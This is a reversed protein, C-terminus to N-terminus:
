LESISKFSDKMADRFSNLTQQDQSSLQCGTRQAEVENFVYYKNGVRKAGVSNNPQSETAATQSDFVYIDQKFTGKTSSDDICGIAKIQDNTLSLTTSNSGYGDSLSYSLQNIKTSNVPIKIGLDQVKLYTVASRSSSGSSQASSSTSTSDSQNNLMLYALVGLAALVILVIVVGAVRM